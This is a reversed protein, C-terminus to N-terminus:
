TRDRTDRDRETGANSLVLGAGCALVFLGAFGLVVWKPASRAISALMVLVCLGMGPGILLVRDRM